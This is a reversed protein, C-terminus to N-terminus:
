PIGLFHELTQGMRGTGSRRGTGLGPSFTTKTAVGLPNLPYQKFEESKKVKVGSLAPLCRIVSTKQGSWIMTVM